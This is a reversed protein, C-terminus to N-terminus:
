SDYRYHMVTGYIIHLIGFGTAWFILGYGPLLAAALGLVIESFGLYRIEAVTISSANVLALGYFLLCAPAILTFYGQALFILILLGGTLLPIALLFLLDKSPKNWIGTGTRKAKRISMLVATVVALALVATALSAIQIVVTVQNEYNTEYGYPLNPYYVLYYTLAAGAMAYTGAMVGSLGSLSLFKISREMATRISAIDRQYDHIDKM